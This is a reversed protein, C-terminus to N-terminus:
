RTAFFALPCMGETNEVRLDVGAVAVAVRADVLVARAARVSLSLHFGAAFRSQPRDRETGALLEAGKGHRLSIKRHRLRRLGTQIWGDRALEDPLLIRATDRGRPCLRDVDEECRPLRLHPVDRDGAV